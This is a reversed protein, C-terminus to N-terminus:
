ARPPPSLPVHADVHAHTIMRPVSGGADFTVHMDATPPLVAVAGLLAMLGADTNSCGITPCDCAHTGHQDGHVTCEPAREHLPCNEMGEHGSASAGKPDCSLAMSVLAAAVVNGALAIAAILRARNRILQM